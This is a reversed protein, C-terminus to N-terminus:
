YKMCIYFNEQQKQTLNYVGYHERFFPVFISTRFNKM